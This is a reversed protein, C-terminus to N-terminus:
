KLMVEVARVVGDAVKAMFGLDLTDITDTSQHYHPNRFWSTDTIMLAPYGADWFPSHDSLRTPPIAEGDGPVVLSEVPLGEVSKMPIVFKEVLARSTENGVVGIFNGVNPYLHALGEPLQQSGPADSKYGVMELSVMGALPTHLGALQQAHHSSGLMSQEELTFAILQLRVAPTSASRHLATERGRNVSARSCSVVRAIELLAAIGSANDDAAPSGMVGDYHAGIILLPADAPADPLEAIINPYDRWLARNDDYRTRYGFSQFQATIYDAARRLERVRTVANRDGVIQQLHALLNEKRISEAM